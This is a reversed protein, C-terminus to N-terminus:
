RTRQWDRIDKGSEPMFKALAEWTFFVLGDAGAEKAFAMQKRLAAPNELKGHSTSVGITIYFPVNKPVTKRNLAAAEKFSEDTYRYGSPNVWDLQKEEIWTKWDQCTEFNGTFTHAGWCYSSFPLGPRAKHVATRLEGMFKNLQGGRWQKYAPWAPNAQASAKASVPKKGGETELAGGPRTIEALDVGKHKLFEARATDTYGVKNPMRMYDLSIGDIPYKTAMEVMLRTEYDRAEANGPDIYGIPGEPAKFAWSPNRELMLDVKTDGGETCVCFVPYVKLGAKHAAAAVNGLFNSGDIMEPPAVESAWRVAGSTLKAYPLIFDIGASKIEAMTKRLAAPSDALHALKCYVGAKGPTEAALSNSGVTSLITLWLLHLVRSPTRMVPFIYPTSREHVTKNRVEREVVGLRSRTLWCVSGRVFPGSASDTIRVTNTPYSLARLFM